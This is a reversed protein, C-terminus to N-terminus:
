IMAPAPPAAMAPIAPMPPVPPLQSGHNQAVWRLYHPTLQPGLGAVLGQALSDVVQEALPGCTDMARAWQTYYRADKHATQLTVRSRPADGAALWPTLGDLVRSQGGSVQIAQLLTALDLGARSASAMAESAAVFHSFALFNNVMKAAHGTGPGGFRFISECFAQLIPTARAVDAADGGVLAHLRGQVAEVPGRTVPADVLAIGHAQLQAHFRQTAEPPLTSCDIVLLGPQAQSVIGGDGFLVQQVAEVSPLCLVIAHCDAALASPSAFERAGLANLEEITERQRHAVVGLRHGHQLLRLGMGRGMLGAGILGVHAPAAGSRVADPAPLHSM